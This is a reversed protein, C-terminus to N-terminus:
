FVVGTSVGQNQMYHIELVNTTYVCHESHKQKGRTVVVVVNATENEVEFVCAVIWWM